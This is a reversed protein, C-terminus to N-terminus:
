RITMYNAPNVAEGNKYIAFHLHPGTSRGTNGSKAIEQGAAVNAGVKVTAKQLHLYKSVFGDGHDVVVYYGSIDDYSVATVKGARTAVVSTGEYAALDVACHYSDEGTTPHIRYGFYSTVETYNVPLVWKVEQKDMLDNYAEELEDAKQQYEELLKQTEERSAAMDQMAQKAAELQAESEQRSAAMEQMTQKAAELQLKMEELEAQATVEQEVQKKEAMANVGLFTAVVALVLAVSFIYPMAKKVRPMSERILKRWDAKLIM